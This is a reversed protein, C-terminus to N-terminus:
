DAMLEPSEFNKGGFKRAGKSTTELGTPLQKWGSIRQRTNM